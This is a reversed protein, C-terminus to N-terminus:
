ILRGLVHGWDIFVLSWSCSLLSMRPFLLDLHTPHGDNMVTAAAMADVHSRASSKTRKRSGKSFTCRVLLMLLWRRKKTMRKGRGKETWRERLFLMISRLGTLMYTFQARNLRVHILMIEVVRNGYQIGANFAKIGGEEPPTLITQGFVLSFQKEAMRTQDEHTSGVTLHELVRRLVNFHGLPLRSVANRLM